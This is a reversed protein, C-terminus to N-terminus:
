RRSFRTEIKLTKFSKRLTKRSLIAFIEALSRKKQTNEWSNKCFASFVRQLRTKRLFGRSKEAGAKKQLFATRRWNRLLVGTYYAKM